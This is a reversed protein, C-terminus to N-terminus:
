INSIITSHKLKKTFKCNRNKFMKEKELKWNRMKERKMRRMVTKHFGEQWAASYTFVRLSTIWAM